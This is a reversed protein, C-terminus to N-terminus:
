GTRPLMVQMHIYTVLQTVKAMTYKILKDMQDFNIRANQYQFDSGFTLMINDTAFAAAIEYIDKIFRDTEYDVNYGDLAPNDQLSFCNNVFVFM